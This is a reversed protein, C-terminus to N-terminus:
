KSVLCIDSQHFRDKFQELSCLANQLAPFDEASNLAHDFFAKLIGALKM